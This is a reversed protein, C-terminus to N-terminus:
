PEREDFDRPRMAERPVRTLSRSRHRGRCSDADSTSSLGAWPFDREVTAVPDDVALIVRRPAVLCLAHASLDHPERSM